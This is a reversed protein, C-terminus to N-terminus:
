RVAAAPTGVTLSFRHTLGLDPHAAHSTRVFLRGFNWWTVPGLSGTPLDALAGLGCRGFACGTAELSIGPTGDSRRDLAVGLGLGHRPFLVRASGLERRGHEGFWRPEDSLEFRWEIRLLTEPFIARRHRVLLTTESHGPSPEEDIRIGCRRYEIGCEFRAGFGAYVQKEDEQFLDGGTREWCCSVLWPMGKGVGRWGAGLAVVPLEPMGFLRTQGTTIWGGLKGHSSDAPSPCVERARLLLLADAPALLWGDRVQRLGAGAAPDPGGCLAGALLLSWAWAMPQNWRGSM